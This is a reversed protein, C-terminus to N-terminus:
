KKEIIFVVEVEEGATSNSFFEKELYPALLEYLTNVWRKKLEYYEEKKLKKSMELIYGALPRLGINWVHAYLQNTVPMYEALKFGHKSFLDIWGDKSFIHKNEVSRNRDVLKMWSEPFGYSKYFDVYNNMGPLYVALYIKGDKKIIRHLERFINDIDDVWYITNSFITFFKNDEFALKKNCDAQLLNKYFNLTKSKKLNNEKWDLGFDIQYNPKRIISPKYKESFYNQIDIGENYKDLLVVDQYNDFDYDFNGGAKIFSWIGHGCMLDLSPSKFEMKDLANMLKTVGIANEPRAWFVNCLEKLYKM